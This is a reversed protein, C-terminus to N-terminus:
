STSVARAVQAGAASPTRTRQLAALLEETAAVHTAMARHAATPDREVIAEVIKEHQRSEHRAAVKPTPVVALFGLLDHLRTQLFKAGM